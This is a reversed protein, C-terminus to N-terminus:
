RFVEGVISVVCGCGTLIILWELMGGKKKNKVMAAFLCAAVTIIFLRIM